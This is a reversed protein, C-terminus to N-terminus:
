IEIHAALILFCLMLTAVFILDEAWTTRTWYYIRFRSYM